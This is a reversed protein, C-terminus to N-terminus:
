TIISARRIRATVSSPAILPMINKMFGFQPFNSSGFTQYAATVCHKKESETQKPPTM